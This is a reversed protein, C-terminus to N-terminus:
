DPGSNQLSFNKRRERTSKKIPEIKENLDPSKLLDHSNQSDKLKMDDEANPFKLKESKRIGSKKSFSGDRVLSPSTNDASKQGDGSKLSNKKKM